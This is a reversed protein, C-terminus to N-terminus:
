GTEKKIWDLYDTNGATIPISIISPCEYSHFKKVAAILRRINSRRTKAILIAEKAFKIKGKWKYISEMKDIINVCAALRLEVVARGITRAENKNSATIYVMNYRM